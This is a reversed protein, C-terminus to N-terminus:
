RGGMRMRVDERDEREDIFVNVRDKLVRDGDLYVDVNITPRFTVPAARTETRVIERLVPEPSVIEPHREAMVVQGAFPKTLYAGRAMAFHIHDWHDSRVGGTYFYDSGNHVQRGGAPSFILERIRPKFAARIANFIEMRPTIDLARGMAHYSLSGSRTRAGPRFGSIVDGPRGLATYARGVASNPSVGMLGGGGDGLVGLGDGALKSLMVTAPIRIPGFHRGKLWEQLNRVADRARSTDADFNVTKKIRDIAANADDRFDRVRNAAAEMADAWEPKFIRVFRATGRLIGEIVITWTNLMGRFRELVFKIVEGTIRALFRFVTNVVNRFTESRKYAVVLGVALAAVAAIVLVVPNAALFIMARSMGQVVQIGHAAIKLTPGLAAGLAAVKIITDQTAPSLRSFRNIMGTAWDLVRIAVPLLKAGFTRALAEAKEQMVRTKNAASDSTRAFNGQATSSREMFLEHFALQKDQSDLESTTDALGMELAKQQVAAATVVVGFEDLREFNGKLGAQYARNVDAVSRNTQSAIDGIRGMAVGIMDISQQGKIGTSQLLNGTINAFNLAEDQGVGYRELLTDSWAIVADANRGFVDRTFDMSEGMDSAMKTAAGAAALIPLTVGTTMKSGASSLKEAAKDTKSAFGEVRKNIKELGEEVFRIKVADAM